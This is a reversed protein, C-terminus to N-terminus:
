EDMRDWFAICSICGSISAILFFYLMGFVAFVVFMMGPTDPLGLLNAIVPRKIDRGAPKYLSHRLDRGV